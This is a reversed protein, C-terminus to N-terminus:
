EIIYLGNEDTTFLKKTKPVVTTMLSYEEMGTDVYLRVFFQVIGSESIYFGNIEYKKLDGGVDSDAYLDEILSGFKAESYEVMALADAIQLAKDNEKDYVFTKVNYDLDLSPMEQYEVVAQLYEDSEYTYTFIEPWKLVNDKAEEYVTILSEIDTNIADIADSPNDAVFKPIQVKNNGNNDEIQIEIRANIKTEDAVGSTDTGDEDGASPVKECGSLMLTLSMILAMFFSTMRLNRSKNM